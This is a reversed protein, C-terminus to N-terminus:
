PGVPVWRCFWTHSGAQRSPCCCLLPMTDYARSSLRTRSVQGAAPMPTAASASYETVQGPNALVAADLRASPLSNLASPAAPAPQPPQPLGSPM